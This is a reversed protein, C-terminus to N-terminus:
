ATISCGLFCPFGLVDSKNLSLEDCHLVACRLQFRYRPAALIAEDSCSDRGGQAVNVVIATLKYSPTTAPPSFVVHSVQMYSFTAYNLV